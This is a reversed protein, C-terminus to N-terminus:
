KNNENQMDQKEFLKLTFNIIFDNIITNYFAKIINQAKFPLINKIYSISQNVTSNVQICIKANFFFLIESNSSWM